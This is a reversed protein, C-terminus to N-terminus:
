KKGMFQLTTSYICTDSDGFEFSESLHSVLTLCTTGASVSSTGPNLFCSTCGVQCPWPSFHWSLCPTSLSFSVSRRKLFSRMSAVLEPNLCCQPFAQWFFTFSSTLFVHCLRRSYFWMWPKKLIDTTGDLYCSRNLLAAMKAIASKVNSLQAHSWVTVPIFGHKTQSFRPSSFSHIFSKSERGAFVIVASSGQPRSCIWNKM